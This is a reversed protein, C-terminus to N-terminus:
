KIKSRSSDLNFRSIIKFDSLSNSLVTNPHYSLIYKGSRVLVLPYEECYQDRASVLEPHEDLMFLTYCIGLARTLHCYLNDSLMTWPDPWNQQDLPHIHHTLLPAQQWWRDITKLKEDDDLNVASHRLDRWARLREIYGAQFPNM